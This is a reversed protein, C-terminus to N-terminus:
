AKLRARGAFLGNFTEQLSCIKDAVCVLCGECTSPMPGLPFMHCAIVDREIDSLSFDREANALARRPHRYSHRWGDPSGKHWDYLFYDHLLAGRVLARENVRVGCAKALRLSLACVGLSHRRVSTTGHQVCHAAFVMGPSAVIDGAHRRIATQPKGTVKARLAQTQEARILM